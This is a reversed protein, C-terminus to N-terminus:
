PILLELIMKIIVSKGAQEQKSERYEIIEEKTMKRLKRYTFWILLIIFFVAGALIFFLIEM